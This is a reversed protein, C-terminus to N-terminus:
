FFPEAMQLIPTIQSAQLAIGSVSMFAGMLMGYAATFAFYSSQSIGSRVALYYLAINSILSIAVSIVGNLKIFLPPNFSLESLDAFLNLWKALLRQWRKNATKEPICLLAAIESFKLEMVCRM